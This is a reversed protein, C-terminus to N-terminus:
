PALAARLNHPTILLTFAIWVSATYYTYYHQALHAHEWGPVVLLDFKRILVILVCFNTSRIEEGCKFQIVLKIDCIGLCSLVKYAYLLLFM